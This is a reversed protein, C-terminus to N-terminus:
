ATERGAYLRILVARAKEGNQQNAYFELCQMLQEAMDPDPQRTPKPTKARVPMQRGQPQAKSLPAQNAKSRTEPSLRGALILGVQGRLYPSMDEMHVYADQLYGTPVHVIPMGAYKGVRFKLEELAADRGKLM